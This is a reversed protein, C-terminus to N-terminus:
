RRQRGFVNVPNGDKGTVQKIEVGYKAEFYESNYHIRGDTDIWAPIEKSEKEAPKKL